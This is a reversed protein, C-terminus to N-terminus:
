RGTKPELRPRAYRSAREGAPVLLATLDRLDELTDLGGVVDPIRRARPEGLVPSSLSVFKAVVDDAPVPDAADGRVM